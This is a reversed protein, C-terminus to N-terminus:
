HYLHRRHQPELGYVAAQADRVIVEPSRQSLSSDHPPPPELCAKSYCINVGVDMNLKRSHCFGLLRIAYTPM